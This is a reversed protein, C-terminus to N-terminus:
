IQGKFVIEFSLQQGKPVRAFMTELLGYGFHHAGEM